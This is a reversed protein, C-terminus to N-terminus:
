PKGIGYKAMKKITPKRVLPSVIVSGINQPRCVTGPTGRYVFQGSSHGM